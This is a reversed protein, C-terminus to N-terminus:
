SFLIATGAPLLALAATMAASVRVCGHSSGTPAPYFHLATLGSNGGYNAITPSHAGTLTIPHGKTYYVHTDVYVSQIYSATASPTPDAASGLRAVESTIMMGTADQISITSTQGDVIVVRTAPSLTFDARRAWAFTSSPASPSVVGPVAKRSPTSVLIMDGTQGFVALATPTNVTPVLQGIAAIPIAGPTPQAYLGVLPDIPTAITWRNVPSLQSSDLLQAIVADYFALPVAALVAQTSKAPATPPAPPPTMREVAKHVASQSVPRQSHQSLIIAATTGAAIVAVIVAVAVIGRSRQFLTRFGGTTAKKM